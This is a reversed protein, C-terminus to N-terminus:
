IYSMVLFRSSYTFQTTALYLILLNQQNCVLLLGDSFSILFVVGNVLADFLICYVTIFRVSSTFSKCRLVILVNIFSVSSSM